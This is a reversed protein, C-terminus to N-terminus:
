RKWTASTYVGVKEFQPSCSDILERPQIPLPSITVTFSREQTHTYSHTHEHKNLQICSSMPVSYPTLDGWVPTVPIQSGSLTTAALEVWTRQLLVSLEKGWFWRRLGQVLLNRLTYFSGGGLDIWSGVCLWDLTNRGTGSQGSKSFNNM